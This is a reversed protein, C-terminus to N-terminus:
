VSNIYELANAVGDNDLSTTVYNSNKKVKESANGMAVGFGNKEIAWQIGALDNESDGIYVILGEINMEKLVNGKNVTPDIVDIIYNGGQKVEIRDCEFQKLQTIIENTLEQTLPYMHIQLIDYEEINKITNIDVPRLFQEVNEFLESKITESSISFSLQSSLVNMYEHIRVNFDNEGNIIGEKKAVTIYGYIGEKVLFQLIPLCLNKDMPKYGIIKREPYILALSGNCTLLTIPLAGINEVLKITQCFPRGTAIIIENGSNIEKQLSEIVKISPEDQNLETITGDVDLVITKQKIRNM